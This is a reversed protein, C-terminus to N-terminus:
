TDHQFRQLIFVVLKVYLWVDTVEFASEHRQQRELKSFQVGTQGQFDQSLRFLVVLVGLIVILWSLCATFNQGPLHEFVKDSKEIVVSQFRVASVLDVVM